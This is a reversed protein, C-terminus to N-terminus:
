VVGPEPWLVRPKVKGNQQLHYWGHNFAMAWHQTSHSGEPKIGSWKQATSNVSTEHSHIEANIFEAWGRIVGVVQSSLLTSGYFEKTKLLKWKEYIVVRPLGKGFDVEEGEGHLFKYIGLANDYINGWNTPYGIDNFTAWGTGEGPDFAMYYNPNYERDEEPKKIGYQKLCQMQLEQRATLKWM